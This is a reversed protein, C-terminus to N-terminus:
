FRTQAMPSPVAQLPREEDFNMIYYFGIFLGEVAVLFETCEMNWYVISMVSEPDWEVEV